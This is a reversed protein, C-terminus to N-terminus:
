NRSGASVTGRHDKGRSACDGKLCRGYLIMSHDKLEFNLRKAVKHQLEEIESDMFEEVKGCDLCVIHDHHQGENLEFVATTGEFHHRTVLGAAEFQTLVRYVTALGIDEHSELLHKYIDEASMHRPIVTGLIELIKIRPLTVKLGAKRLDNTELANGRPISYSRPGTVKLHPGRRANDRLM